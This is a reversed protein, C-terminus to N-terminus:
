AKPTGKFLAFVAGQPDAMVAMRGVNELDIPGFYVKGGLEVAKAVSADVDASEFYLMWHPPVAPNHHSAPPIGGIGNENAVIHLYENDGGLIKWDFLQSYFATAKATDPTNLDAWCVTGPTRNILTGVHTKSQWICIVAGTPDKLVAMRGFDMVDMPPALVAGGLETCRAATADASAVEVYVNWHPPIGMKVEDPMQKYCAAAERDHLTFRTYVFSEGMPYDHATWGMLQTYFSSAAAHDSTALEFWTFDGPLHSDINPM